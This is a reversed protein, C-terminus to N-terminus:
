TSDPVVPIGEFFVYMWLSAINEPAYVSSLKQFNNKLGNANIKSGGTSQLESTCDAVIPKIYSVRVEKNIPKRNIM